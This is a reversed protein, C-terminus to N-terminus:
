SCGNTAGCTDCKHCAGNVVLTFNGCESCPDGSYGKMKAEQIKAVATSAASKVRGRPEHADSKEMSDVPESMPDGYAEPSFSPQIQGLEYRGLYTIALDRFIYDILSTAMKISDHGQVAGAPNFRTFTFADVYKELPVGYQLGISVAIAFNNMLSRFATGEKHMNIFIEGLTGDSYEGTSLFIKHGGIIAKQTYGSRRTPMSKRATKASKQEAATITAAVRKTLEVTRAAMPATSLMNIIDDSDEDDDDDDESETLWSSVLPQSLKSGDRYLAVSKLGEKWALMYANQCDEVTSKGPMNITKSIAGTLFPQVAAMMLIHAEMSLSRIGIKGCTNACDFVPLHQPKIHPAGELTMTGACYLNALEIHEAPFGLFKLLDFSEEDLKEAPVNLRKICFDEGLTWKTFVFRLDFADALSSEIKALAVEDFGKAMLTEHNIFPAGKLSGRGIAYAIIEETQKATYGLKKLARPVLRNILKFYGGGSLHKFKVLAFDPELGTTDCDMLLGITGTPALLTVQANKFGYEEGDELAKQWWNNAHEVIAPNPCKEINFRRPAKHLKEFGTTHGQSAAYHNRLVRLMDKENAAYEPFAGTEGAMEASTAYAVASMLSTIAAAYSRGEESDYPIGSAMLLGGINAYGLGLPRFNYSNVAIEKSPFQAMLVSIELTLTWLRVVHEFSEIDFSGDKGLFEILNVSALNCSSDDIFMFESCPNSGRISGSAPCTHWDNITTDYQVGPDACAWAARAIRQWIDDAKVTAAITKSVRRVLDWDGGSLVASMFSDTLRVSNNSNQGSVTSYAESDWDTTLINFKENPEGLKALEIVRSIYSPPVGDRTAEKVAKKLKLNSKPDFQFLDAGEGESITCADYVRGLHKSVLRSGAALYAIKHEERAKWEIFEVIDPHDADLIVMKAARRTKGGSKISGAATDGICLFSIVGSSTGGSSLPEGKGRLASFNTGSGSGYKFLRAERLYLDMIGGDKVLDDKISQIFCAHPQPHEYESTATTLVGTKYDVYYHGHPEGALGYAWYPGTNFWQPSNPAGIQDVLIYRMEDHYAKADAESDFYGAKFGWYTWTGVMRDITQKASTEQGFRQNEPLNKLEAVHAERPSLWDPIGEEKRRRVVAPVGALRFYRQALIDRAVQSWKAPVEIDSTKVLTEGGVHKIASQGTTWEVM